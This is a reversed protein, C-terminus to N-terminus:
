AAKCFYQMSSDYKIWSYIYKFYEAFYAQTGMHLRNLEKPHLAENQLRQCLSEGVAMLGSDHTLGLRAFVM